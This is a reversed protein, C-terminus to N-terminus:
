TTLNAEISTITVAFLNSEGTNDTKLKVRLVQDQMEDGEFLVYNTSINPTNVNRLIPASFQNPLYETYSASSIQSQQGKPTEIDGNVDSSWAETGEQQINIYIKDNSPNQNFVMDVSSEVVEGFFTNRNPTGDSLAGQNQLYLTGEKCSLWDNGASGLMEVPLDMFADWYPTGGDIFVPADLTYILWVQQVLAANVTASTYQITIGGISALADDVDFQYYGTGNYAIFSTLNEVKVLYQSGLINLTQTDGDTSGSDVVTNRLYRPAVIYAGHREDFCGVANLEQIPNSKPDFNEFM